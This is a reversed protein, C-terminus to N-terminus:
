PTATPQRVCRPCMKRPTYAGVHEDTLLFHAAGSRLHRALGSRRGSARRGACRGHLTARATSTSDRLETVLRIDREVISSEAEPPMGRLGLKFSMPGPEHQASTMRTDERAPDRETGRAGRCWTERM